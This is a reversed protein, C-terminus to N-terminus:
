KQLRARRVYDSVHDGYRAVYDALHDKGTIVGRCGAVGCHCDFPTMTPGCFTAYDLTIPEGRAIARRAVVNLGELWASPDCSHDYPRWDEPRDSWMGYVEDTFPYAYRDFWERKKAYWTREVHHRTVLYHARVERADITEGGRIERAAYLGWGRRPQFRVEFAVRQRDRRRQACRLLHSLFGGPGAPDRALIHDASGYSGDPYFIGCNPNIELMFLRGDKDMRIDCRGYGAGDLTAFFRASEDRLREALAEDEVPVWGIDEYDVWKLNFHKFTEGPPFKCELPALAWPNREGERPETVLVTFERGDVFEEVLAAGYQDMMRRAESALADRDTVRSDRTMGVSSYSNPHKVILPFRLEAAQALDGEDRVFVFGPTEIGAYVAAMKMVRRSPDYFASGAGTFALELRELTQVVEIGARDEDWAGDCLNVFADYGAHALRQIHAVASAKHLFASSWTHEPLHRGPDCPPDLERFASSSQDYSPHLVCIRM